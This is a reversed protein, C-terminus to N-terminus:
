SSIHGMKDKEVSNELWCINYLRLSYEEVISFFIMVLDHDFQYLLINALRILIICTFRSGSLM